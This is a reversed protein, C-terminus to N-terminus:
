CDKISCMEGCGNLNLAPGSLEITARGEDDRQFVQNDVAGATIELRQSLLLCPLLFAAPLIFKMPIELM